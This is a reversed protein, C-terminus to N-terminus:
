ECMPGDVIQAARHRGLHGVMQIDLRMYDFSDQVMDASVLRANGSDVIPRPVFLLHAVRERKPSPAHHFGDRRFALFGFALVVLLFLVLCMAVLVAALGAGARLGVAQNSCTRIIALLAFIGYMVVMM